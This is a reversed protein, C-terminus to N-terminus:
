EGVEQPTALFDTESDIEKEESQDNGGTWIFNVDLVCKHIESCVFPPLKHWAKLFGEFSMSLKENKFQFLGKDNEDVINCGALTLYVEKRMLEVWPIEQTEEMTGDGLQSYQRRVRNFVAARQENQGQTAQLILVTTADDGDEVPYKEDVSALHFEKVVPASIKLAM